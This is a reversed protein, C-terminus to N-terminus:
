IHVGHALGILFQYVEFTNGTLLAMRPSQGAFLKNPAGLWRRIEAEEVYEKLIGQMEKLHGLVQTPSEAKFYDKVTVPQIDAYHKITNEVIQLTESESCSYFKSLEEYSRSIISEKAVELLEITEPEYLSKLHDTAEFLYDVFRGEKKQSFWRLAADVKQKDKPANRSLSFLRDNLELDTRVDRIHTKLEDPLGGNGTLVGSSFALEIKGVEASLDEQILSCAANKLFEKREEIRSALEQYEKQVNEQKEPPTADFLKSGVSRFEKNAREISKELVQATAASTM